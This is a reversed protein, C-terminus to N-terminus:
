FRLISTLIRNTGLGDVSNQGIVFMENLVKKQNLFIRAKLLFDKSNIKSADGIYFCFHDSSLNELIKKQNINTYLYASPLGICAREWTTIGPSGIAVDCESMYKAMDSVNHEIEIKEGYISKIYDLEQSYTYGSATVVKLVVEDINKLILESFKCTYNNIDNGGFFVHIKIPKSITLYKKRYKIFEPKLIAYETGCLLKVNEDVLSDYRKTNKSYTSDILLDCEHKRDALDDIVLIKGTHPRVIKEWEFDIMYHDVIIWDVTKTQKKIIDITRMADINANSVNKNKNKEIELNNIIFVKFGKSQIFEILDGISKKCIFSCEIGNKTLEEALTLCRAVHGTGIKLSADVRFQIYM